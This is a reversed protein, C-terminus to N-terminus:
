RKFNYIIVGTVKVPVQSLYTTGFKAGWAAREAPARLMAHGNIAKASIVKGHEDITVQVDVKGGVNNAIAMQPYAPVPLHKAEGNIVGKSKITTPKPPDPKVIPPPEPLPKPEEAVTTTTTLGAPEGTGVGREPGGYDVGFNVPGIDFPGEPRSMANSPSTSINQPVAVPPEDIRQINATRMPPQTQPSSAARQPQPTEPEVPAVDPPATLATLELTDSGLDFEAAFISIVVAVSFLLGVVVSSVMFYRKRNKFGADDSRSEILKEFM